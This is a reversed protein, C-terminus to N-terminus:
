HNLIYNINLILFPLNTAFILKNYNEEINIFTNLRQIFQDNLELFILQKESFLSLITKIRGIPFILSSILTKEIKENSLRPTLYEKLEKIKIENKIQSNDENILEIIKKNVEIILCQQLSILEDVRLPLNEYNNM